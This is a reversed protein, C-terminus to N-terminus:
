RRVGAYGAVIALLLLLMLLLTMVNFVSFSESEGTGTPAATRPVAHHAFGTIFLGVVLAVSLFSLWSVGWVRPGVPVLWIGGAWTAFFLVLLLFFLKSPSVTEPHSRGVRNVAIPLLLAACLLSAALAFVFEIFV